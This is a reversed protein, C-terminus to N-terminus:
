GIRWEAPGWGETRLKWNKFKRKLTNFFYPLKDQLTEWLRSKEGHRNNLTNKLWRYKKCNTMLILSKSLNLNLKEKKSLLVENITNHIRMLLCIILRITKKHSSGLDILELPSYILIKVPHPSYNHSTWVKLVLWGVM